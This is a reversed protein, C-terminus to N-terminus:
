GKGGRQFAVRQEPRFDDGFAHHPLRFFKELRLQRFPERFPERGLRMMKIRAVLM